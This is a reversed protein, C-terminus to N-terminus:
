ISNQIITARNNNGKQYIGAWNDCGEQSIDAFNMNGKQYIGAWNNDGIQNVHATNDNGLQEIGSWNNSGEQNQTATNNNGEQYIFAMNDNNNQTQHYTNGEGDQYVYVTNEENVAFKEAFFSEMQETFEEKFEERSFKEALVVDGSVLSMFIFLIVFVSILCNKKMKIIRRPLGAVQIFEPGYSQTRWKVTPNGKRSPYKSIDFGDQKFHYNIIDTGKKPLGVMM